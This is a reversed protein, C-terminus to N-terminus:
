VLADARGRARLWPVVYWFAILGFVVFSLGWALTAAMAPDM